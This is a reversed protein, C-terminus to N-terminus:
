SSNVIGCALRIEGNTGTLPSLNGMKVMASTFASTFASTSSAFNSVTSDTSGNNFLEQDSHLLGKQSLLNTYYDNDFTTPTMTDLPALNTGGSMPCNAQLSTAFAANINTDNYIHDKFNSCQAQGITHAGSLAVMDTADLNKNSFASLLQQLSNTPAPLDTTENPFSATSDRRGLLVTWSPGGLAVVSDRAAVALIDACSVVGPCVAEVQAKINDIVDFRRLSGKNPPSSQEGSTDNLLVSADCGHVFCDHFHMRLLSAGTRAEQMVAADVGSKITSLANPCSTDYFTSSLQASAASALAALVVLLCSASAAM